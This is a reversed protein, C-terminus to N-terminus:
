RVISLKTNSNRKNNNNTNANKRKSTGKKSITSINLDISNQSSNLGRNDNLDLVETKPFIFSDRIDERVLENISSLLDIAEIWLNKVKKSFFGEM